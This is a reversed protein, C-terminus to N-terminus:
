FFLFLTLLPIQLLLSMIPLFFIILLLVANFIFILFLLSNNNRFTPPANQYDSEILYYSLDSSSRYSFSSEVEFNTQNSKLPLYITFSKKEFIMIKIFRLYLYATILVYFLIIITLYIKKLDILAFLVFFKSFFGAFPPFGAFSFIPILFFILMLFNENFISKLQSVYILTLGSSRKALLLMSFFICNTLIYFILYFFSAFFGLYTGTGFSVLIYGLHTIGTYALFRKIRPQVFANLSGIIISLLGCCILGGFILSNLEFVPLLTKLFVFLKFNLVPGVIIVLFATVSLEVGEYVDPVWQHFPAAGLKMLYAIFFFCHFFLITEINEYCFAPDFLFANGINLLNLTKFLSYYGCIAFLLLSISVANFIFYKIAAEFPFITTSTGTQVSILILTCFATLELSLVILMFDYSMLFVKLSFLITMIIIPIELFYKYDLFTTRTIELILLLYFGTLLVLILNYFLVLYDKRFFVNGFSDGLSLNYYETLGLSDPLPYLVHQPFTMLQTFIGYTLFVVVVLAGRMLLYFIKKQHNYNGAKTFSAVVIGVLIYLLLSFEELFTFFFYTM